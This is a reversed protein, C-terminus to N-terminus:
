CDDKLQIDKRFLSGTHKLTKPKKKKYSWEEYHSSLRAHLSDWDFVFLHMELVMYCFM